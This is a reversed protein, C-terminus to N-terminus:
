VEKERKVERMNMGIALCVVLGLVVAAMGYPSLGGRQLVGNVVKDPSGALAFNHAFAAGVVM